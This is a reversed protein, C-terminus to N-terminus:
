VSKKQKPEPRYYRYPGVKVTKGSKYTRSFAPVIVLRKALSKFKDTLVFDWSKGLRAFATEDEAKAYLISEVIQRAWKANQKSMQDFIAHEADGTGAFEIPTVVSDIFPSSFKFVASSNPVSPVTEDYCDMKVFGDKQPEVFIYVKNTTQPKCNVCVLLKESLSLTKAKDKDLFKTLLDVEELSIKYCVKTQKRAAKLTFCEMAVLSGMPINRKEAM